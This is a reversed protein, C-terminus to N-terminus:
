FTILNLLIHVALSWMYKFNLSSDARIVRNVRPSPLLVLWILSTAQWSALMDFAVGYINNEGYHM